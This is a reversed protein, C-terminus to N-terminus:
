SYTDVGAYSSLETVRALAAMPADPEFTGPILDRLLSLTPALLRRTARLQQAAELQQEFAARQPAALVVGAAAPRPPKAAAPACARPSPTGRPPPSLGSFHAVRAILEAASLTQLEEQWIVHCNARPFVAYTALLPTEYMSWGLYRAKEWCPALKARVWGATARRVVSARRELPTAGNQAEPLTAWCRRLAAVDRAVSSNFSDREWGWGSFHQHHSWARALPERLMLFLKANAHQPSAGLLAAIRPLAAAHLAMDPTFDLTTAGALSGLRPLAYGFRARPGGASGPRPPRALATATATASATSSVGSCGSGRECFSRLRGDLAAWFGDLAARLAAAAAPLPLDGERMLRLALRKAAEPPLQLARRLVNRETTLPLSHLSRAWACLPMSPGALRRAATSADPGYKQNRVFFFLEKVVGTSGPSLDGGALVPLLVRREGCRQPWESANNSSCSIEPTFTATMCDWLHTTGAKPCCPVFLTPLVPAPDDAMSANAPPCRRLETETVAEIAAAATAIASPTLSAADVDVVCRRPTSM